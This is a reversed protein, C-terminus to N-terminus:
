TAVRLHAADARRTQAIVVVTVALACAVVLLGLLAGEAAWPWVGAPAPIPTAGTEARVMPPAVVATALAGVLAGALLLPLLVGAHQGLLMARVERRTVGLGRLRAVEVARVRLDSNVHLVVGALLLLVAVLVLLQLSPRVGARPASGTLRATEADRTTVQGLHLAAVREAAGARPQGAWWADIPYTLDGAAILSRSLTDIDALVAPAGPAAPVEPVVATVVIPVPTVGVPMSLRAGPGVGLQGAVRAAVAVPVPGPDPFATAVLTRAAAESSVLQVGATMTLRGATASVAPDTLMGSQPPASTATWPSGTAAGPVTVTVSVRTTATDPAAADPSIPLAIAVLRQGTATACDPLRHIRGDLTVREGICTGRLGTADQLVLRPSVAIPVDGTATGTITLATGPAVPLGEVRNKPTLGAGVQSWTRGGDLRGRLLTGARATDVAVLRPPQTAGGTWQGLGVGRDVAPSVSGGTAAALAPGDGTVPPGTVSVRLDTGVALDAQDHQSRDWTAGFALGFTGASCALSVLLGAAVAHPRRAAEFVALPLVLGRAKRALRDLGRLAPPVLRLALAAGATLVLAPAAVRVVDTRSTATDPQGTLQWWGIAALGALLLDVGSRAVLEARRHREGPATVPRITLVALLVALALAGGTVSFLQAANTGPGVALGAGALPPLHTLGAHLGASAPVAIAAALVALVATEVAALVTFQGRSVGLASLLTTEGARVGATLRGALVLAAATLGCGLLAVAIVVAGAVRRQERAQQMTVPLRADVRQINVRDGLVRGLRRGADDLRIDARNLGRLDARSLDPVAVVELRDVVSPTAYLDPLNVLFPGYSLVLQDSVGESFFSVLYGQGGLTDREWGTGPRPRVVGVVTVDLAPAADFAREQGIRVRQGVTIGLMRATTELLVAEVPAAGARPWRGTLLTARQRLGDVGSLYTEAPLGNVEPASPLVRMRSSARVTTTIPYPAYAETLVARTDAAVSAAARPKVEVTYATARVQDAPGRTAVSTLAQEATRTVLLACTGAVTAGIALLAVLTALLPWQTRVRRILLSLM